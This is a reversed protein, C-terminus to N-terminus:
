RPKHVQQLYYSGSSQCLGEQFHEWAAKLVASIQWLRRTQKDSLAKVEYELRM